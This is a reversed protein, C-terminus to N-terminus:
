DRFASSRTSCSSNLEAYALLVFIGGVTVISREKAGLLFCFDFRFFRGASVNVSGSFDKKSSGSDFSVISWFAGKSDRGTNSDSIPTAQLPEPIEFCNNCRRTLRVNLAGFYEAACDYTRHFLLYEEDVMSILTAEMLTVKTDM